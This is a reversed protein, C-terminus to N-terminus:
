LDLEPVARRLRSLHTQVQNHHGMVQDRGQEYRGIGGVIAKNVDAGGLDQIAPKSIRSHLRIKVGNKPKSM